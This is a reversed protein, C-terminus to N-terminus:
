TRVKALREEADREELQMKTVAHEEELQRQTDDSKGLTEHALKLESEYENARKEWEAARQQAQILSQRVTQATRDASSAKAEQDKLRRQMGAHEAEVASLKERARRLEKMEDTNQNQMLAVLAQVQESTTRM